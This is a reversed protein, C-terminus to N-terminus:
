HGNDTLSKTNLEKHLQVKMIFQALWIDDV